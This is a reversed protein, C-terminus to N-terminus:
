IKCTKSNCKGNKYVLQILRYVNSSINKDGFTCTIVYFCLTVDIQSMKEGHCNDCKETPWQILTLRAPRGCRVRSDCLCQLNFDNTNLYNPNLERKSLVMQWWRIVGNYRSFISQCEIHPPTTLPSTWQGVVIFIYYVASPNVVVCALHLPIRSLIIIFISSTDNVPRNITIVAQRSSHFIRM